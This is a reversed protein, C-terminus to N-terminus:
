SPSGSAQTPKDGASKQDDSVKEKAKAYIDNGEIAEKIYAVLHGPTIDDKISQLVKEYVHWANPTAKDRRERMFIWSEHKADWSCEIIQGNHQAADENPFTM